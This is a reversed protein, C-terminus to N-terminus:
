GCGVLVWPIHLSPGFGIKVALDAARM